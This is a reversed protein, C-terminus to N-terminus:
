YRPARFVVFNRIVFGLGVIAVFFGMAGAAALQTVLRDTFPDTYTTYVRLVWLVAMLTALGLFLRNTVRLLQQTM